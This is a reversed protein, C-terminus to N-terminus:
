LSSITTFLMKTRTGTIRTITLKCWYKIARTMYDVNLNYSNLERLSLVNPTTKGITLYAKCFQMQVKEINESDQTGWIEAGYLLVPKIKLDFIKFATRPDVVRLKNFLGRVASVRSAARCRHNDLCTSWCLRSSFILGLYSYYPVVEM